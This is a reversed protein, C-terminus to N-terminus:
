IEVFKNRRTLSSRAWRSLYHAAVSHRSKPSSRFHSTQEFRRSQM